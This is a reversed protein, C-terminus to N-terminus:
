YDKVCRVSLGYTKPANSRYLGSNDFNMYSYWANTISYESSSWWDGGNGVSAFTGLYGRYGGPLASFGTENTAGTNPGNWHSTGTEKLKGGAVGEGGLYTTLTSWDADTAVHWGVPAINRSDSAAYWNYLHGYKTGNDALNSYDCWAGTSLGAWATNDTVNAILSGDRYHTVRLNSAMWTQTGITITQYVNGDIDVVTLTKFSDENGYATGASNTAYARV